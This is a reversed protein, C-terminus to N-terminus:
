QLEGDDDYISFTAQNCLSSLEIRSDSTSLQVSFSETNERAVDDIIQVTACQEAGIPSEVPFTVDTPAFTYDIGDTCDYTHTHTNTHTHSHTLSHAHTHTHTHTFFFLLIVIM